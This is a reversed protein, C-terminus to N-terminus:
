LLEGGTGIRLWVLGTWRVVDWVELIWGLIIWGGVEQDEKHDEERQSERYAKRKEGITRCSGGMEEEEVKVSILLATGYSLCDCAEWRPSGPEVGPQTM